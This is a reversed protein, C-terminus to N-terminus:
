ARRWRAYAVWGLLLLLVFPAVAEPLENAALHTYIAGVMVVGLAAAAFFAIRPILLALGAGIEIVGILIRFWDPYGWTAFHEAIEKATFKMVGSLIFLFALLGSVVRLAITSVKSNMAM